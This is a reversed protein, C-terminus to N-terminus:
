YSTPNLELAKPNVRIKGAKEFDETVKRIYDEFYSGQASELLRQKLEAKQKQFAAEDFPSRSKVQLVTMNDLLPLPPSVGGPALDFAAQNFTPSSGIEPAPTGSLNFPQSVKVSFGMEKAVKELSGMKAAEESLKRADAQMLEKAKSDIFDKEVQNRSQALDGPKPMQVEVLKPVAFGLPVEVAKGISGIEKLEFTGDRFAQSIGSDTSNDEKAFFNTEKVEAAVGLDKAALNLDKQKLAITAAQEAKQKAIEQAKRLQVTTILGSKSSEFSPTDHHLVKIIHYGYETRVLGSIEGVKLSFAANDFEKVMQGRPFAGLFGGQSANSTDESYKKALGAFDEGAKAQKLVSEAKAKVEAEKSPDSIKFLIHSATVTEDHPRQDWESQIEQDTVKVTPIINSVPILLYQARRKEKIRYTDKRSDFYARLEAETPKVRKSVDDKKLLVYDVVTQQNTKSFEDRLEHGGVDLSDTIIRQLKKSLQAYRIDQEFDSISINNAALVERYRELGIFKGQDQLAPLTEIGERIEDTTVDLGLRKAAIEIVKRTIMSDLVQKPVGIARLTESDIRNKGGNSYKEAVRRYAEAFEQMPITQGDVSAASTDTAVTGMNVGPVFFLLMGLALSLIVLWLILKLRKKRRMIDLM